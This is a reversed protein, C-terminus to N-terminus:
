LPIIRVGLRKAQVKAFSGILEDKGTKLDVYSLKALNPCLPIRVSVNYHQTSCMSHSKAFCRQSRGGRWVLQGRAEPQLCSVFLGFAACTILRAFTQAHM